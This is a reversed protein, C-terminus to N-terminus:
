PTLAVRVFLAHPGDIGHGVDLRLGDPQVGVQSAFGLLRAFGVDLEDLPGHHLDHVYRAAPLDVAVRGDEVAVDPGVQNGVVVRYTGDGNDITVETLPPALWGLSRARLHLVEDRLAAFPAELEFGVVRIAARDVLDM